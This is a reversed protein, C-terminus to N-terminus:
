FKFIAELGVSSQDKKALSGSVFSSADSRDGRVETRIEVSKSPLYALTLTAEKWKQIVGTKYGDTDDFYEGRLSLRWQDQLVYNLYGAMGSWKAKITSGDVTSTFNDQTAYDYNLIFTLRDNATITAVVDV